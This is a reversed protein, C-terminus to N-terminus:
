GRQFDYFVEACLGVEDPQVFGKDPWGFGQLVNVLVRYFEEKQVDIHGGQCADLKIFGYLGVGHDNEGGGIAFVGYFAEIEFGYVVQELRKGEFSEQLGGVFGCFIEFVPLLFVIGQGFVKEETGIVAEDFYGDSVDIEDFSHVIVQLDM